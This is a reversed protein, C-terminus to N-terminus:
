REIVTAKLSKWRSERGQGMDWYSMMTVSIDAGVYGVFTRMTGDPDPLTFTAYEPLGALLEWLAVFEAQEPFYAWNLTYKIKKAAIKRSLQGSINRKAYKDLTSYTIELGDPNPVWVGNIAMMDKAM